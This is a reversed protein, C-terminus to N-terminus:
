PCLRREGVFHFRCKKYAIFQLFWGIHVRSEVNEVDELIIGIDDCHVTPPHGLFSFSSCLCVWSSSRFINRFTERASKALNGRLDGAAFRPCSCEALSTLLTSGQLEMCRWATPISAYAPAAYACAVIRIRPCAHMHMGIPASGLVMTSMLMRFPGTSTSPDFPWSAHPSQGRM